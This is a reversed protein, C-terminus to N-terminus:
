CTSELEELQDDVADSPKALPIATVIAVGFGVAVPAGAGRAVDALRKGGDDLAVAVAAQQRTESSERSRPRREGSPTTYQTRCTATRRGPPFDPVFERCAM